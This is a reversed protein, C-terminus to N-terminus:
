AEIQPIQYPSYRLLYVFCKKGEPVALVKDNFAM